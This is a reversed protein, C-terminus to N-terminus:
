RHWIEIPRMEHTTLLAGYGERADIDQDDIVAVHVPHCLESTDPCPLRRTEEDVALALSDALEALAPNKADVSVILHFGSLLNPRDAPQENWPLSPEGYFYIAKVEKSTSGLYQAMEKALGYYLYDRVSSDAKNLADFVEQRDKLNAKKGCYDIAHEMMTKTMTTVESLM